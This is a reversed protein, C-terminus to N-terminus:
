LPLRCYVRFSRIHTMAVQFFLPSQVQRRTDRQLKHTSAECVYVGTRVRVRALTTAFEQRPGGVSAGMAKESARLYRLDLSKLGPMSQTTGWTQHRNDLLLTLSRVRRTSLCLASLCVLAAGHASHPRCCEARVVRKQFMRSFLAVCSDLARTRKSRAKAVCPLRKM